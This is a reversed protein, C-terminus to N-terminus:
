YFHGSAGEVDGVTAVKVGHAAYAARVEPLIDTTVVLLEAPRGLGNLHEWWFAYSLLQGLAKHRSRPKCEVLVWGRRTLCAIDVKYAWLSSACRRLPGDCGDPVSDPEPGIPVSAHLELVEHEVGPWWRRFLASDCASLGAILRPLPVALRSGASPGRM